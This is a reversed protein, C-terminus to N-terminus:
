KWKWTSGKPGDKVIIGAKSLADDRAWDSLSLCEQKFPAPLSLGFAKLKSRIDVAAQAAHEANASPRQEQLSRCAPLGVVSFFWSVLEAAQAKVLKSSGESKQQNSLSM